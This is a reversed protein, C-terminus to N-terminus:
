RRDVSQMFRIVFDVKTDDFVERILREREQETLKSISIIAQILDKKAKEYKGVPDLSLNVEINNM